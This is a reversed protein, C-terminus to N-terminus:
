NLYCASIQPFVYQVPLCVIQNWLLNVRLIFHIYTALDLLSIFYIYKFFKLICPKSCLPSFLQNGLNLINLKTEEYIGVVYNFLIKSPKKSNKGKLYVNKVYINNPVHKFTYFPTFIYIFAQIDYPLQM